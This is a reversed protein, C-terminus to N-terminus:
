YIYIYIDFCQLHATTLDAHMSKQQFSDLKYYRRRYESQIVKDSQSHSQLREVLQELGGFWLCGLFTLHLAQHFGLM